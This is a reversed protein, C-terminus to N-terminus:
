KLKSNIWEIIKNDLEACNNVQEGNFCISSAYDDCYYAFKGLLEDAYQKYEQQAKYIIKEFCQAILLNGIQAKDKASEIAGIVEYETLDDIDFDDTVKDIYKCASPYCGICRLIFEETTM